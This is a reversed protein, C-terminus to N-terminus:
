VNDRKETLEIKLHPAVEKLMLYLLLPTCLYFYRGTNNGSTTAISVPTIQAFLALTLYFNGTNIRLEKRKKLALVLLYVFYSNMTMVTQRM